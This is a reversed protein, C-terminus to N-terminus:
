HCTGERFLAGPQSHVPLELLPKNRDSMVYFIFLEPEPSFASVGWLFSANMKKLIAYWFTLLGQGQSTFLFHKETLNEAVTFNMM